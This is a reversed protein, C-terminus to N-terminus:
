KMLLLKRLAVYPERSGAGHASLRAFYVGSSVATGNDTTGNWVTSYTGPSLQGTVLTAIRQGLLNYISIDTASSKQIEFKITTSPNFPNPYNQQLAFGEPQQPSELKVEDLYRSGYKYIHALNYGATGPGVFDYSSQTFMNIKILGVGPDNYVLFMSDCRAALYTPDPWSFTFNSDPADTDEFFVRFTDKSTPNTPQPRYDKPYLGVGWFTLLGARFSKFRVNKGSPPPPPAEVEGINVTTDGMNTTDIGSDIFYTASDDNGFYLHDIVIDAHDAIDLWMRSTRGQAAATAATMGILLAGAIVYLVTKLKM